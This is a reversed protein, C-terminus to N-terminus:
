RDPRRIVLVDAAERPPASTLVTLSPYFVKRPSGETCSRSLLIELLEKGAAARDLAHFDHAVHRSTASTSEAEDLHSRVFLSLTRDLLQVIVIETTAVQGDILGLRHRRAGAATATAAEAAAAPRRRVDRVVNTFDNPLRPKM